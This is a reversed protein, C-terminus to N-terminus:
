FTMRVLERGGEGTLVVEALEGRDVAAWGRWAGDGAPSTSWAGAAYRNGDADVAVVRCEEGPRMGAVSIELASGDDVTSAIVTARVAGAAATVTQEGDGGRAVVGIGIGLVAVVVAAVLAWTRARIRPAPGAAASLRDFLAATPAVEAPRLDDPGLDERRVRDLLAPLPSFEALQAACSPCTRLHAEVAAREDPDLAGLVYAGLGDVAEPCTM